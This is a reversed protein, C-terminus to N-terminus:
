FLYKELAQKSCAILEHSFENGQELYLARRALMVLNLHYPLNSLKNRQTSSAETYKELQKIAQKHLKIYNHLNLQLDIKLGRSMHNLAQQAEMSLLSQLRKLDGLPMFQPLKDPKDIFYRDVTADFDSYSINHRELRSSAYWHAENFSLKADHNSDTAQESLKDITKGSNLFFYKLYDDSSEVAELSTQCGTAIADPHAAYFGCQAVNALMGSHCAGSVVTLHKGTKDITQKLLEASVTLAHGWIPIGAPSNHGVQVMLQQQESSSAITSFWQELGALDAAHEANIGSNIFQYHEGKKILVDRLHPKNGNTYAVNLKNSDIRNQIQKIRTSIFQGNRAPHAATGWISTHVKNTKAALTVPINGGEKKTSISKNLAQEVFYELNLQQKFFDSYSFGYQEINKFSDSEPPSMYRPAIVGQSWDVSDAINASYLVKNQSMVAVSLQLPWHKNQISDNLQSAIFRPLQNKDATKINIKHGQHYFSTQYNRQKKVEDFLSCINCDPGSLLYLEYSAKEALATCSLLLLGLCVIKKLPM